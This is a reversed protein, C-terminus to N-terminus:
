EQSRLGKLRGNQGDLVTALGMKRKTTFCTFRKDLGKYYRADREKHEKKSRFM